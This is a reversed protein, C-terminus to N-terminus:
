KPLKEFMSRIVYDIRKKAMDAGANKLEGKAVARWIMYETRPDVLVVVLGAQPVNEFNGVKTEPNQRFKKAAMDVGIAYAVLVDPDAVVQTMERNRLATDIQYAIEAGAHFDPSEWHGYPDNLIAAEGLWAYSKLAGFNVTKDAEASIEIDDTPVTACGAMLGVSAVLCLIMKRM